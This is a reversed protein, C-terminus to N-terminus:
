FLLFKAFNAKKLYDAILAILKLGNFCFLSGVSYAVKEIIFLEKM